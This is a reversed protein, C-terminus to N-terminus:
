FNEDIIEGDGSGIDVDGSMGSGEIFAMDMESKDAFMDHEVLVPASAPARQEHLPKLFKEFVIRVNESCESLLFLIRIM